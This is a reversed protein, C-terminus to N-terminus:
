IKLKEALEYILPVQGAVIKKEAEQINFWGAKDVEAFSKRNGSKPPWELEFTNSVLTTTNFDGEAAWALVLKGSKQRVPTLEIFSFSAPLKLGTEEYMERIAANLPNEHDSIEGKPISWVGEDKRAWFPGGPHVLLVELLDNQFRYLLIGASKIPM